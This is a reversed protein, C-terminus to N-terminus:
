TYTGALVLQACSGRGDGCPALGGAFVSKAFDVPRWAGSEDLLEFRLDPGPDGSGIRWRVLTVDEQKSYTIAIQRPAFPSDVFRVDGCGAGLGWTLLAAWLGAGGIRKATPAKRNACSFGPAQSHGLAVM